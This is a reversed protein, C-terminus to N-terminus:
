LGARHAAHLGEGAAIFVDLVERWARPGPGPGPGEKLWVDLPQGSVLEMAMFVEREVMGVDHVAVINPHQLRALAQAERLLRTSGGEAEARDARLIKLAVKRDLQPDFAAYVEGWGGAGLRELVVYRGLTRGPELEAAARSHVPSLTRDVSESEVEKLRRLCESCEGIHRQLRTRESEELAGSALSSLERDRAHEEM